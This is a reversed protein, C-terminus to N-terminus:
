FAPTVSVRVPIRRGPDQPLVTTYSRGAYEYVVIYGTVRNEWDNVTRCQREMRGRDYDRDYDDRAYRGNNQVKDGIVAGAIAGAATSATNGNGKGFQSGLLAGAVGGVVTGTYSRDSGRYRSYGGERYVDRCEERPVSVKEYQPTVNRVRAYDQYQGGNNYENHEALAAGSATFLLAVMAVSKKMTTAKM